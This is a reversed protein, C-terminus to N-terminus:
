TIKLESRELMCVSWFAIKCEARFACRLTHGQLGTALPCVFSCDYCTCIRVYCRVQLHSVNVSPSSLECIISLNCRRLHCSVLLSISYSFSCLYYLMYLSKPSPVWTGCEGPSLLIKQALLFYELPKCVNEGYPSVSYM